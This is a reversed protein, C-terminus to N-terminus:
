RRRRYYRHFQISTIIQDNQVEIVNRCDIYQVLSKIVQQNSAFNTKKPSQFFKGLQDAQNKKRQKSIPKTKEEFEQKNSNCHTLPSAEV